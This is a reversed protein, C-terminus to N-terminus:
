IGYIERLKAMREEDTLKVDAVTAKAANERREAAEFKERALALDAEKLKLRATDNATRKIDNALSEYLEATDHDDRFSAVAARVEYSKLREEDTINCAKALERIAEAADKACQIRQGSLTQAFRERFRYFSAKAPLDIDLREKCVACATEYGLGRTLEFIDRQREVSLKSEWADIRTMKM